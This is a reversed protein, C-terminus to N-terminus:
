KGREIDDLLEDIREQELLQEETPEDDHEDKWDIQM